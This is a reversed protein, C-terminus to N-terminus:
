WNSNIIFNAVATSLADSGATSTHTMDIVPEVWTGANNIILNGVSGNGTRIYYDNPNGGTPLGATNWTGQYVLSAVPVPVSMAGLYYSFPIIGYTAAVQAETMGPFTPDPLASAAAAAIMADYTSLFQGPFTRSYWDQLMWLANTKSKQSELQDCVLRSGNWTATRQGMITMFFFRADRAGVIEAMRLSAEQIQAMALSGPATTPQNNQGHWLGYVYGRYRDGLRSTEYELMSLVNRSTGGGFSNVVGTRSTKTLINAGVNSVGFMSDSYLAIEDANRRRLTGKHANLFVGVRGANKDARRVEWDSADACRLVVGAGAAVTTIPETAAQSWVGSERLLYDGIAFTFGGTTGVASAQWLDGDSPTAPLSAAPDFEGRYFLEGKTAGVTLGKYWREKGTGSNSQFGLYVIREGASYQQGDFIGGASATWFDGEVRSVGGLAAPAAQYQWAAGDYVMIDGLKLTNAGIVRTPTATYILYDGSAYAGTPPFTSTDSVDGRYNSSSYAGPNFAGCDRKGRVVLGLSRRFQLATGSVNVGRLHNTILHPFREWLSGSASSRAAVGGFTNRWESPRAEVYDTPYSVVQRRVVPALKTADITDALITQTPFKGALTGDTKIGFGIRGKADVVAWVFGTDPTLTQPFFASVEPALKALTVSADKLTYKPITVTGDVSVLLAARGSAGMLAWVYGSEPPLFQPVLASSAVRVGTDTAVPGAQKRWIIAAEGVVTSPTSFYGGVLITADALATATDPRMNALAQAADRASQASAVSAQAAAASAGAALESARANDESQKLPALTFRKFEGAREGILTDSSTPALVELTNVQTDAM